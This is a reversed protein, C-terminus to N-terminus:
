FEVADFEFETLCRFFLFHSPQVADGRSENGQEHCSVANEGVLGGRMWYCQRIWTSSTLRLETAATHEDRKM